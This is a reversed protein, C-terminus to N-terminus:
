GVAARAHGAGLQLSGRRVCGPRPVVLEAVTTAGQRRLTASGGHEEGLDEVLRTGEGIAAMDSPGPGDDIVALRVTDTHCSLRVTIRGRDRGQMGHKVANGVLENGARLMAAGIAGPCSSDAEVHVDIRQHPEALLEVVSESLSQLRAQIAAGPACTFGFLADSITASLRVRRELDAFVRREQPGSGLRAAKAIECLIRQLSNKSHHRLQRFDIDDAVTDGVWETTAGIESPVRPLRSAPPSYTM